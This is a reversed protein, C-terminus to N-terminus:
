LPRVLISRSDRCRRSFLIVINLATVATSCYEASIHHRLRIFLVFQFKNNAQKIQKGFHAKASFNSNDRFRYNNRRSLSPKRISVNGCRSCKRREAFEAEIFSKMEPRTRAQRSPQIPSTTTDYRDTLNRQPIWNQHYGASLRRPPNKLAQATYLDEESLAEHIDHDPINRYYRTVHADRLFKVINIVSYMHNFLISCFAM